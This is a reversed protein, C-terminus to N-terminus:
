EVLLPAFRRVLLVVLTFSRRGYGNCTHDVLSSRVILLSICTLQTAHIHTTGRQWWADPSDITVSAEMDGTESIHDLAELWAHPVQSTLTVPGPVPDVFLTYWLILAKARTVVAAEVGTATNRRSSRFLM